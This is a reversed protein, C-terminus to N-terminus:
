ASAHRPRPLSSGSGQSITSTPKRSGSSSEWNGRRTVLKELNATEEPTPVIAEKDGPLGATILAVLKEDGRFAKALGERAAKDFSASLIAQVLDERSVTHTHGESMAIVINGTGDVLWGHDHSIEAGESLASNTTGSLDDFDWIHLIHSAGNVVDTMLTLHKELNAGEKRLKAAAGDHRKLLVARAPTQAPFDAAALEGIFIEKLIRRKGQRYATTKPM